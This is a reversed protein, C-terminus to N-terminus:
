DHRSARQNDLLHIHWRSREHHATWGLDPTRQGVGLDGLNLHVRVPVHGISEVVHGFLLAQPWSHAPLAAFPPFIAMPLWPCSIGAALFDRVFVLGLTLRGRI